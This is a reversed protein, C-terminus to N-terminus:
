FTRMPPMWDRRGLLFSSIISELCGFLFRITRVQAVPDSDFVIVDDLYAAMQKLDKIVENIVKVFWGLSASRGQPM